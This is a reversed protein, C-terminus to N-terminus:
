KHNPIEQQSFEAGKPLGCNACQLPLLSSWQWRRISGRGGSFPKACRPCPWVIIRGECVLVASTWVLMPLALLFANEADFSGSEFQSPVVITLLAVTVLGIWFVGILNGRLRQFEKWQQSYDNV